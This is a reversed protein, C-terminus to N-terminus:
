KGLCNKTQPLPGSVAVPEEGCESCVFSSQGIEGGLLVREAKDEAREGTVECPPSISERLVEGEWTGSLRNKRIILHTGRLLGPKSRM